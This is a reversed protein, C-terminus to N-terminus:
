FVELSDSPAAGSLPIIPDDDSEGFGSSGAMVPAVEKSAVVSAAAEKRKLAQERWFMPFGM